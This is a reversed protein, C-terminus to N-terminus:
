LLINSHDFHWSDDTSEIFLPLTCLAGGDCLLLVVHFLWSACVVGLLLHSHSCVLADQIYFQSVTPKVWVKLICIKQSISHEFWEQSIKKEKKKKRERKWFRREYRASSICLLKFVFTLLRTM